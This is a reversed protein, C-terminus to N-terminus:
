VYDYIIKEMYGIFDISIQQGNPFITQMIEHGGYFSIPYQRVHDWGNWFM